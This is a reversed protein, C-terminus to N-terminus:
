LYLFACVHLPTYLWYGHYTYWMFVRRRSSRFIGIKCGNRSKVFEPLLMQLWRQPCYARSAPLICWLKLPHLHFDTYMQM